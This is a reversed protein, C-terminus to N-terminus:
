FEWIHMVMVDLGHNLYEYPRFGMYVIAYCRPLDLISEELVALTDLLKVLVATLWLLEIPGLVVETPAVHGRAARPHVATRRSRPM